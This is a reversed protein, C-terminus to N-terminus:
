SAPAHTQYKDLGVTWLEDGGYVCSEEWEWNQGEKTSPARALVTLKNVPRTYDLHLHLDSPLIYHNVVDLMKQTLGEQNGTVFLANNPGVVLYCPFNAGVRRKSAYCVGIGRVTGLYGQETNPCDYATRLLQLGAEALVRLLENGAPANLADWVLYWSPFDRRGRLERFDTDM